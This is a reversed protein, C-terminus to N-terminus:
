RLKTGDSEPRFSSICNIRRRRELNRRHKEEYFALSIELADLVGYKGKNNLWWEKTLKPNLTIIGLIECQIEDMRTSEAPQFNGGENPQFSDRELILTRIKGQEIDTLSIRIAIKDGGGLDVLEFAGVEKQTRKELMAIEDDWRTLSGKELIAFNEEDQALMRLIAAKEEPTKRPM